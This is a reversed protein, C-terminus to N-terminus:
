AVPPPGAPKKCWPLVGFFSLVASLIVSIGLAGFAIFQHNNRVFDAGAQQGLTYSEQPNQSKAGALGGEVAGGIICIAFFAVFYLFVLLVLFTILRKLLLM